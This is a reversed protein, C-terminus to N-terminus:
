RWHMECADGDCTDRTKGWRYRRRAVQRYAWQWVPLSGPIHLFPALPWLWPLKRTLFRFAEAGAHRRGQSDVVYMQEMLQDHSLDPYRLPVEPDHLSLFALVGRSDFRALRAVQGQCFKCHGDFIVVHGHPRDAITPLATMIEIGGEHSSRDAATAM